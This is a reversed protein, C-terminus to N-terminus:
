VIAPVPRKGWEHEVCYRLIREQYSKYRPVGISTGRLAEMTNSNDFNKPISLYSEYADILRLARKARNFMMRRFVHFIRLPLFKVYPIERRDTMRNFFEVALNVVEGATTAASEGATLHFTKGIGEDTKLFIHCLANSVYDVPVVDTPTRPSGPLINLLGHYILKLPFYLVNFATTRGTQSDGVIISPRFVTIPLRDMLAHVHQESEFKSQEYTNSFGYRGELENEYIRGSRKGAVYATSIYAIRRLKGSQYAEQALSMVNETGRFNIRRAEELPLQFQVSAASHIIHTVESVLEAYQHHTLGLRPKTVDGRAAITRERIEDHGMEEPLERLLHDLRQQAEADSGGRILLMLRADSNDRLIRSILNSGVLGTAGTLFIVKNM